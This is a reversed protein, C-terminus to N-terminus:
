LDEKSDEIVFLETEAAWTTWNLPSNIPCIEYLMKDSGKGKKVAIRGTKKVEIQRYLYHM